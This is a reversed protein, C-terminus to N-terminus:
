YRKRKYFNLTAILLVPESEAFLITLANRVFFPSDYKIVERITPIELPIEQKKRINEYTHM